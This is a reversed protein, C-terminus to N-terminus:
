HLSGIIKPHLDGHPNTKDLLWIHGSPDLWPIRAESDIHVPNPLVFLSGIEMQEQVEDIALILNPQFGIQFVLSDLHEMCLFPLQTLVGEKKELPSVHTIYM